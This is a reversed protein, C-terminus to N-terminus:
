SGLVANGLGLRALSLPQQCHQSPDVGSSLGGEGGGWIDPCRLRCLSFRPALAELDQKLGLGCPQRPPRPPKMRQCRGLDEWAGSLRARAWFVLLQCLTVCCTLPLAPIGAIPTVAQPDELPVGLTHRCPDSRLGVALPVTPSDLARNGQHWSVCASGRPPWKIGAWPESQRPALAPLPSLLQWTEASPLFPIHPPLEPPGPGQPSGRGEGGALQPGM